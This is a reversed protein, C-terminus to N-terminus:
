RGAAAKLSAARTPDTRVMQMQATVNFTGPAWPNSEGASVLKCRAALDPAERQMQMQATLNFGASNRDFPNVEPVPQVVDVTGDACYVGDPVGRTATRQLDAVMDALAEPPTGAAVGASVRLKGGEIRFTADKLAVAALERDAPSLGSLDLSKM